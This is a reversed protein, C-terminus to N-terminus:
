LYIFLFYNLNYIYNSLGQIEQQLKKSFKQNDNIITKKSSPSIQDLKKIKKSCKYNFVPFLKDNPKKLSNKQEIEFESILSKVENNSDKVDELATCKEVAKNEINTEANLNLDPLDM